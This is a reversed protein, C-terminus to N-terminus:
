EGWLQGSSIVLSPRLSHVLQVILYIRMLISQIYLLQMGLSVM